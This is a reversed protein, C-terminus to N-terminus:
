SCYGHQVIDHLDGHCNIKYDKASCDRIVDGSSTCLSQPENNGNCDCLQVEDTGGPITFKIDCPTSTLPSLTRTNSCADKGHEWVVWTNQETSTQIQQGFGVASIDRGAFFHKETPAALATSAALLSIIAFIQQM